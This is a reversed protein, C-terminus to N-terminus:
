RTYRVGFWLAVLAFVVIMVAFLVSALISSYLTSIVGIGIVPLANGCFCCVFYSSM